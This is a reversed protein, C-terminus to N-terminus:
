FAEGDFTDAGRRLVLTHAVGHKTAFARVRVPLEVTEGVAPIEPLPADYAAIKHL